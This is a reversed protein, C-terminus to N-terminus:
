LFEVTAENMKSTGYLLEVGNQNLCSLFVRGEVGGDYISLEANLGYSDKGSIVEVPKKDRVGLFLTEEEFLSGVYIDGSNKILIRDNELFFLETNNIKIIDEIKIKPRGCVEVFKYNM